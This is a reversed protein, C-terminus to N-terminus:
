CMSFYITKESGVVLRGDDTFTLATTRIPLECIPQVEATSPNILYLYEGTGGYMHGSFDIAIDEFHDVPGETFFTM